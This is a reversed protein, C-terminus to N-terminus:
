YKKIKSFNERNFGSNLIKLSNKWSAIDDSRYKKFNIRNVFENPNVKTDPSKYQKPYIKNKHTNIVREVLSKKYDFSIYNKTKEPIIKNIYILRLFELEYEPLVYKIACSNQKVAELCINYYDFGEINKLKQYNVFELANEDQKVAILCAEYYDFVKGKEPNQYEIYQLLVGYNSLNIFINEENMQTPDSLIKSLNDNDYINLVKKGQITQIIYNM